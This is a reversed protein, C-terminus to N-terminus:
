YLQERTFLTTGGKVRQTNQDASLKKSSLIRWESCIRELPQDQAFSLFFHSIEMRQYDEDGEV